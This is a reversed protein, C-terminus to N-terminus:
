SSPLAWCGLNPLLQPRVQSQFRVEAHVSGFQPENRTRISARCSHISGQSKRFAIKSRILSYATVSVGPTGRNAEASTCVGASTSRSCRRIAGSFSNLIAAVDDKVKVVKEYFRCHRMVPSESRLQVATPLERGGRSKGASM